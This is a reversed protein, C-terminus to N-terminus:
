SRLYRKTAKRLEKNMEDHADRESLMRKKSKGKGKYRSNNNEEEDEDEDNDEDEDDESGNNNVKNESSSSENNENNENSEDNECEEDEEEEIIEYKNELSDPYIGDFFTDFDEIESEGAYKGSVVHGLKGEPINFFSRIVPTYLENWWSIFTAPCSKRTELNFRKNGYEGIKKTRSDSRSMAKLAFSQRMTSRTNPLEDISIKRLRRDPFIRDIDDLVKRWKQTPVISYNMINSKSYTYKGSCYPRFPTKKMIEVFKEVASSVTGCEERLDVNMDKFYDYCRKIENKTIRMNYKPIIWYMLPLSIVVVDVLDGKDNKYSVPIWACIGTKGCCLEPLIPWVSKTIDNKYMSDSANATNQEVRRVYEKLQEIKADTDIKSLEIKKDIIAMQKEQSVNIQTALVTAFVEISKQSIQTSGSGDSSGQGKCTHEMSDGECGSCTSTSTLSTSTSTSSTAM